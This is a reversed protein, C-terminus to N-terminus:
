RCLNAELLVCHSLELGAEIYAQRLKDSVEM